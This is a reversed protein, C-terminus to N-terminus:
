EESVTPQSAGVVAKVACELLAPCICVTVVVEDRLLWDSDVSGLFFAALM